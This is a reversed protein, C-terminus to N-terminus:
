DDQSNGGNDKVKQMEIYREVVEKTIDGVTGVYYSPNWLHGRWLKERLEPFKLFLKRASGGKMIKVIQSPSWKPHATIFLHVHDPMVEQTHLIFGNDVALKENIKKLEEAIEGVLVKDIAITKNPYKRKAEEYVEDAREGSAVVRGDVIAIWKGRM